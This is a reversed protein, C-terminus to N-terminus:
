ESQGKPQTHVQALRAAGGSYFYIPFSLCAPRVNFSPCFLEAGWCGGMGAPDFWLERSLWLFGQLWAHLFWAGLRRPSPSPTDEKCAARQGSVPTESGTFSTRTEGALVTKHGAFPSAALLLSLERPVTQGLNRAGHGGQRPFFSGLPRQKLSPM